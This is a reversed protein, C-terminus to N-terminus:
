PTIPFDFPYPPEILDLLSADVPHCNVDEWGSDPTWWYCADEGDGSYGGRLAKGPEYLVQYYWGLSADPTELYYIHQTMDGTTEDFTLYGHNIPSIARAGYSAGAIVGDRNFYYSLSAAPSDLSVRWIAAEPEYLYRCSFHSADAAPLYLNLCLLDATMDEPVSATYILGDQSVTTTFIEADIYGDLWLWDGIELSGGAAPLPRDLVATARGSEVRFDLVQPLETGSLPIRPFEATSRVDLRLEPLPVAPLPPIMAALDPLRIDDPAPGPGDAACAWGSDPSWEYRIADEETEYLEFSGELVTGYPSYCVTGSGSVGPIELPLEYDNMVGSEQDYFLTIGSAHDELFWLQGPYTFKYRRAPSDTDICASRLFGDNYYAATFSNAGEEGYAVLWDSEGKNYCYFFDGDETRLNLRAERLVPAQFYGYSVTIVEEYGDGSASATLTLSDVLPFAREAPIPLDFRLALQGDGTQELGTAPVPLLTNTLIVLEGTLEDFDCPGSLTLLLTQGDAARDTVVPVDEPMLRVNPAPVESANLPVIDELRFPCEAANMPLDIGEGSASACLLMLAALLPFLRKTM